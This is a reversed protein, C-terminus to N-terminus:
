FSKTTENINVFLPYQLKLCKARFYIFKYYLAIRPTIHACSYKESFCLHQNSKSRIRTRNIRRTYLKSYTTYIRYIYTRQVHLVCAHTNTNHTIEEKKKKKKKAIVVIIGLM